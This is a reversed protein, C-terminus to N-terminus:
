HSPGRLPPQMRCLATSACQLHCRYYSHVRHPHGAVVEESVLQREIALYHQLAGTLRQLQCAAGDAGQDCVESAASMEFGSPAFLKCCTCLAKALLRWCTGAKFIEIRVKALGAFSPTWPSFRRFPAAFHRHRLDTTEGAANTIGSRRGRQTFRHWSETTEKGQPFISVM